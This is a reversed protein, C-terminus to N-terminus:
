WWFFVVSLSSLALQTLKKWHSRWAAPVWHPFLFYMFTFCRSVAQSSAEMAPQKWEHWLKCVLTHFFISVVLLNNSVRTGHREGFTDVGVQINFRQHLCDVLDLLLHFLRVAFAPSVSRLTPIGFNTHPWMSTWAICLPPITKRIGEWVQCFQTSSARDTWMSIM